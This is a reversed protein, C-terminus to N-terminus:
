SASPDGIVPNTGSSTAASTVRACFLAVAISQCRSDDSSWCPLKSSTMKMSSGDGGGSLVLRGKGIEVVLDQRQSRGARECQEAALTLIRADVKRKWGCLLVSGKRTSPWKFLIPRETV